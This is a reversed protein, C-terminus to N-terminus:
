FIFSSTFHYFGLNNELEQQLQETIVVVIFTRMRMPEQIDEMGQEIWCSQKVNYQQILGKQAEDRCVM